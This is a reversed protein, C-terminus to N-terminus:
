PSPISPNSNPDDDDSALSKALNRITKHNQKKTIKTNLSNSPRPPISWNLKVSKTVVVTSSRRIRPVM